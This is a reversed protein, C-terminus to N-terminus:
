LLHSGPFLLNLLFDCAILILIAHDPFLADMKFPLSAFIFLLDLVLIVLNDLKLFIQLILNFVSVLQQGFDM